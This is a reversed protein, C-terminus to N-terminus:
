GREGKARKGEGREAPRPSTFVNQSVKAASRKGKRKQPTQRNHLPSRQQRTALEDLQRQVRKEHREEEKELWDRGASDWERVSVGNTILLEPIYAGESIPEFDQLFDTGPVSEANITYIKLKNENEQRWFTFAGFTPFLERRNIEKDARAVQKWAERWSLKRERKLREVIFFFKERDSFNGTIM